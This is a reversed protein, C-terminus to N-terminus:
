RQEAAHKRRANRNRNPGTAENTATDLSELIPCESVPRNGDCENVLAELARKMSRLARIKEEIERAKQQAKVRVGACRSKPLARLSLLEKIEKLSFGLAQARKIFRIRHVADSRFARYGSPLRHAVALLGHREYYRVTETNVRGERAVRGRSLYEM